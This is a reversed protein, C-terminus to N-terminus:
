FRDLVNFTLQGLNHSANLHSCVSLHPVPEVVISWGQDVGCFDM